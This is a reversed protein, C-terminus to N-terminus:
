SVKTAALDRPRSAPARKLMAKLAWRVRNVASVTLLKGGSRDVPSSRSRLWHEFEEPTMGLRERLAHIEALNEATAMMEVKVARGKRGHLAFAEAQERDMRRRPVPVIVPQGLARKLTDILQSGEGSNLDNFSTLEHGVQQSAWALRAARGEGTRTKDLQLADRAYLHFLVNLARVQGRWIPKSKM